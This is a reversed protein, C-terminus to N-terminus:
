TDEQGAEFSISDQSGRSKNAPGHKESLSGAKGFDANILEEGCEVQRRDVADQVIEIRGYIILGKDV